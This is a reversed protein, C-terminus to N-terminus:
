SLLEVRDRSMRRGPGCSVVSRSVSTSGEVDSNVKTVLLSSYSVPSSWPSSGRNFLVLREAQAPGENGVKNYELVSCGGRDLYKLDCLENAIAASDISCQAWGLL